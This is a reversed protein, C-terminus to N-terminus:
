RAVTGVTHTVPAAAGASEAASPLLFAHSAEWSVTVDEGPRARQAPDLNQAFAKLVGGWATEVEYETSAGLYTATKVVGRVHNVVGDTDGRTVVLKEPRLGIRADHAVIQGRDDDSTHVATGDPLRLDGADGFEAPLINCTGLFEAVFQTQPKDYVRQPAGIDEIRGGNMVALRDAMSMAENQDHTVYLFTIGVEQQIRKLEVQMSKRIKADLAGMPEDLLLVKPENVLARALAVRQQQGGSLQHPRRKAFGDLGVLDLMREARTRAEGAGVGKRRLGFAVNDAVTMHPFLAYSQFVTNVDRRHPPLMTVDTGGLLIRGQTPLEFGGVMRLTTTKGCGSPGLLAFFEGPALELDIDQVARMQDFAKTVHQLAVAAAAPAQEPM